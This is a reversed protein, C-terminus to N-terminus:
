RTTMGPSKLKKCVSRTSHCPFYKHINKLAFTYIGRIGFFYKLARKVHVYLSGYFGSIMNTERSKIQPGEVSPCRTNETVAETAKM